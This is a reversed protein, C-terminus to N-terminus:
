TIAELRSESPSPSTHGLVLDSAKEAIMMSAANTNATPMLPMVSADIVRLRDIGRVCLHPDVVAMEDVGMKCTGVLHWTTGATRHTFEALGADDQIDREPLLETGRVGDFAKAALIRRCWKLGAVSGEVDYDDALYNPDILAKDFPSATALKVQGRSKPRAVYTSVTM